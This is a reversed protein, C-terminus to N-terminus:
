GLVGLERLRGITARDIGAEILVEDTHEGLRPAASRMRAPTESFQVPVGVSRQRLEDSDIIYENALVQEDSVLDSYQQVPTVPVDNARLRELWEDRPRSKFTETLTASLEDEHELRDRERAFRPDAPLDPRELAACVAEWYRAEPACGLCVYAGDAAAYLSFLPGAKRPQADWPQAGTALYINIALMQLTMLGGLQSAYVHQGVGHVSRSVLGALTAYAFFTAGTHDAIGHPGIYRLPGNGSLLYMTGSRAHGMIDFVGVRAEEGKPGLGNVSALVVRPNRARLVDYGIGLREMTGVRFNEAVVDAQEVLRLFLARGEAHKLDLAIARKNRNMTEFFFKADAEGAHEAPLLPLSRGPEGGAPSEVKIVDAGLDALLATGGAGTQWTSLDLIRIGELPM